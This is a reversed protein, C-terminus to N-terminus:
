RMGMQNESRKQSCPLSPNGAQNDLVSKRQAPLCLYLLTAYKVVHDQITRWASLYFDELKFAETGELHLTATRKVM